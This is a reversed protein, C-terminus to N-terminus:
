DVFIQCGAFLACQAFVIMGFLVALGLLRGIRRRARWRCHPCAVATHPCSGRHVPATWASM